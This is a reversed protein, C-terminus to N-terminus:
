ACILKDIEAKAEALLQPQQSVDMNLKETHVFTVDTIGIFGLIAQLYPTQTDLPTGQYVGGRATLVYAKKGKVLGEPGNATYCFTTGARAVADIWAKLTSPIAFNYMPVSLLLVDHAFLEDIAADAKAALAQQESTRQDAPTLNAQLTASDLHPIPDAALDRVTIRSDPYQERWRSIFHQALQSSKGQDGFLSSSIHLLNM